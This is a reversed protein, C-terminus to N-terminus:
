VVPIPLLMGHLVLTLLLFWQLSSQDLWGAEHALAPRGPGNVFHPRLSIIEALPHLMAGATDVRSSDLESALYQTFLHPQRHSFRGSQWVAVSNYTGHVHMHVLSAWVDVVCLAVCVSM